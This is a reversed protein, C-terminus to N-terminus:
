RDNRRPWANIACSKNCKLAMKRSRRKKLVGFRGQCLDDRESGDSGGSVLGVVHGAAAIHAIRVSVQVMLKAVIGIRKDM